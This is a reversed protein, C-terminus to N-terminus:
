RLKSVMEDEKQRWDPDTSPTVDNYRTNYGHNETKPQKGFESGM